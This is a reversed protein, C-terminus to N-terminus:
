IKRDVYGDYIYTREKKLHTEQGLFDLVCIGIIKKFKDGEFPIEKGANNKVNVIFGKKVPEMIANLQNITKDVTKQIRSWDLNTKDSAKTLDIKSKVQYVLLNDKFLVLIDAAEKTSGKPKRYKPNKVVFDAFFM